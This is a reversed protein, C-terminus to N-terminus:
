LAHAALLVHDPDVRDRVARLRELAAADHFRGADVRSETFTPLLAGAAWPALARVVGFAAARGAVAAQPDPAVAVCLLAYAGPLHSLAGGGEARRGLAGGLHRLEAFMLGSRTGPGVQGLLALVAEEDLDGLLTHDGVAPVPAPPDMHVTLLGASPMRGFTDVEPALARLPALVAAATEDDELVAGDIVVVDRGSLFPPLEPLPPFSMVRLSTTVSEPVTRTWDLWARVVEPARDRDWLLMGAVLDAYPLLEIEVAVVVGLSAGGGRVAWSLDDGAREAVDIRRLEGDGTVLEVARVANIGLGHRRGYFSLGGGLLYGVVGVDPASGHAATLGHPAAAEVVADWTTGGLVRATRAAPDVSVGTLASLRLLVAGALGREGLPGAGHGTAQPAVRLGAAGAARVVDVVEDVSRPVAVADPRQEVALNWPTRATDYGPDGPLHLECRARLAELAPVAPSAPTSLTTSM